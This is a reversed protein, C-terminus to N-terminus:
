LKRFRCFQLGSNPRAPHVVITNSDPLELSVYRSKSHFFLLSSEEQVILSRGSVVARRQESTGLSPISNWELSVEYPVEYYTAATQWPNRYDFALVIKKQSPEVMVRLTSTYDRCDSSVSQFSPDAQYVGSNGSFKSVDDSVAAVQLSSLAVVCAVLVSFKFSTKM